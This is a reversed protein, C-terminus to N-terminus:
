KATKYKEHMAQVFPSPQLKWKKELAIIYGTRHWDTVVESLFKAYPGGSETLPIGMAWQAEDEIPLPTEYESWAPDDLVAPFVTSDQLFAVCDGARLANFGEAMGAFGVITVGYLEEVRRNYYAGQTACVRKGKLDTWKKIGSTKKVLAASGGAYYLPEILLIVKRRAPTESMTNLILDTRGQNLFEIRNAAVTPILELKVRLRNAIDQAMDIESGVIKGSPDLFGFPKYDNKVGVVITGRQKIRTLMDVQAAATAAALGLTVAAFWQWARTLQM